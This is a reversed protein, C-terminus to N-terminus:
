RDAKRKLDSRIDRLDEKIGLLTTSIEALTIAEAHGQKEVAALRKDLAEVKTGLQDVKWRQREKGWWLGFIGAGVFALFQWWDLLIQALDSEKLPMGRETM